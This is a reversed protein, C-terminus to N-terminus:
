DGPLSFGFRQFVARAQRGQLYQYFRDAAASARSLRVMRQRLPPHLDAPVLAYTGQGRLSPALVLSHAILGGVSTGTAAFQAAQVVSEGLVLAPRLPEWLGKARLAAEAARGYPAHAPNAIAFRTVGGRALLTRLGDLREDTTLPSGAPAFIALRGVGYVVGGDRTLGAGVLKDVFSEDASLFLDFPAGDIIQRALNGSSGFVLEVREGSQATFQSAIAELAFKLDSAAAVIPAQAASPLATLWVALSLAGLRWRPATM